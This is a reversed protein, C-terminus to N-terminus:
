KQCVLRSSFTHFYLLASNDCHNGAYSYNDCASTAGVRAAKRRRKRTGSNLRAAREYDPLSMKLRARGASSILCLEYIVHPQSVDCWM